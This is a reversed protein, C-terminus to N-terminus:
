TDTRYSTIYLLTITEFLIKFIFYLIHTHRPRKSYSSSFYVFYVKSVQLSTFPMLLMCYLLYCPSQKINMYIIPELNLIPQTFKLVHFMINPCAFKHEYISDCDTFCIEIFPFVHLMNCPVCCVKLGAVFGWFLRIVASKVSGFSRICLKVRNIIVFKLSFNSWFNIGATALLLSLM